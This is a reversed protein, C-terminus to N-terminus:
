IQGSRALPINRLVPCTADLVFAAVNIEYRNGLSFSTAHRTADGNELLTKPFKAWVKVFTNFFESMATYERAGMKGYKRLFELVTPKFTGEMMDALGNKLTKIAAIKQKEPEPLAAGADEDVDDIITMLKTKDYKVLVRYINERLATDIVPSEYEGFALMLDKLMESINYKVSSRLHVQNDKNVIRM